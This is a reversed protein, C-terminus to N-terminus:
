FSKKRAHYDPGAMSGWCLDKHSTIHQRMEEPCNAELWERCELAFAKLDSM